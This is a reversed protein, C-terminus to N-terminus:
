AAVADNWGCCPVQAPGLGRERCSCRSFLSDDGAGGPLGDGMGSFRYDHHLRRCHRAPLSLHVSCGLYINFLLANIALDAGYGARHEFVLLFGSLVCYPIIILWRFWHNFGRLAVLGVTMPGAGILIAAPSLAWGPGASLAAIYLTHAVLISAVMWISSIEKRYPVMAWMFLIGAWALSALGIFTALSGGTGPFLLFISSAFHVVIMLWGTLWIGADPMQSRRVVSAFAWALLVAIVLDPFETWNFV